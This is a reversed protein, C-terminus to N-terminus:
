ANPPAIPVELGGQTWPPQMSRDHNTTNEEYGDEEEDDDFDDATDDSADDDPVTSIHQNM